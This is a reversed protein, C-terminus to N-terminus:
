DIITLIKTYVGYITNSIRLYSKLWLTKVKLKSCYKTQTEARFRLSHHHGASIKRFFNRIQM